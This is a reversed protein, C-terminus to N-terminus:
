GLEWEPVNGSHFETRYQQDGSGKARYRFNEDCVNRRYDRRLKERRVEEQVGAFWLELARM